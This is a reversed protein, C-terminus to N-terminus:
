PQRERLGEDRARNIEAALDASGGADPHATAILRRHATKIAEPTADRPLGLTLWWPKRVEPPPLAAFGDFAREMM